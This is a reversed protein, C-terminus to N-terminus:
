LEFKRNEGEIWLKDIAKRVIKLVRVFVQNRYM